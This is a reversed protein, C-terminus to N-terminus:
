SANSQKRQTHHQPYMWITGDKLYVPPYMHRYHETAEKISKKDHGVRIGSQARPPTTPGKKTYKVQPKGARLLKTALDEQIM